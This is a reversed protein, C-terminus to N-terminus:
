RKIMVLEGFIIRNSYYGEMDYTPGAFQWYQNPMAVDETSNCIQCVFQKIHPHNCHM